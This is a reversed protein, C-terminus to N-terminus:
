PQNTEKAITQVATMLKGILHQLEPLTGTILYSHSQQNDINIAYTDDDIVDLQELEDDDVLYSVVATRAPCYEIRNM